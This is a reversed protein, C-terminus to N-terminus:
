NKGTSGYGESGRETESLEYTEEIFPQIVESIVGQAIRDGKKINITEALIKTYPNPERCLDINELILTVEGRFDSDITGPSNAVRLKTKLTVGSRPRIQLEHGLPVEFSLGTKVLTTQGPEIAIDELAYFDFGAAGKSQYQPIIANKHLKKVKLTNFM